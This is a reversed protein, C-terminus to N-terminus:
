SADPSSGYLLRRAGYSAAMFFPFIAAFFAVGLLLDHGRRLRIQGILDRLRIGEKRTFYRLGTLCCLDVVTGYVNWWDGAASWPAPRHAIFLIMGMLAQTVMLLVPRACVLLLPGAWSVRGTAVRERIQSVANLPVSATPSTENAASVHPSRPTSVLLYPVRELPPTGHCNHSVAGARDVGNRISSFEYCSAADKM